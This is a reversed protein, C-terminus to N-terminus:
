SVPVTELHDWQAQDITQVDGDRIKDILNKFNGGEAFLSLSGPSITTCTSAYSKLTGAFFSQRDTPVM